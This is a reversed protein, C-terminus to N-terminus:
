RRRGGRTTAEKEAIEPYTMTLYQVHSLSQVEPIVEFGYSKAYAVLDRVEDKTLCGDSTVMDGHPVPPWKGLAAKRNARLWAENIEPRRDFRMGAAFELFLTNMRMPALVHRVLRKVFASIRAGRCVFISAAYKRHPYDDIACAPARLAHGSAALVRPADSAMSRGAAILLAFGSPRGTRAFRM